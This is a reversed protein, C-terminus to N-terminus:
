YVDMAVAHTYFSSCQLKKLLETEIYGLQSLHRRSKNEIWKRMPFNVFPCRDCSPTCLFLFMSFINFGFQAFLKFFIENRYIVSWSPQKRAKTKMSIRVSFNLFPCRNCMFYMYKNMYYKTFINTEIHTQDRHM